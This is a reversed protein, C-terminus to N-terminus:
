PHPAVPAPPAKPHRDGVLVVHVDPGVRARVRAAVETDDTVVFDVVGRSRELFAAVGGDSSAAVHVRHPAADAAISAVTYLKADLTHALALAAARGGRVVALTATVSATEFREDIALDMPADGNGDASFNAGRTWFPGYITHADLM